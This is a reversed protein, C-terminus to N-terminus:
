LCPELIEEEYLPKEAALAIRDITDIVSKMLPGSETYDAPLAHHVRGDTKLKEAINKKRRNEPDYVAVSLGGSDKVVQMCPIDTEGDGIYVMNGFPVHRKEAPVVSNVRRDNGLDM